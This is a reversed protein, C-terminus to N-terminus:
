GYGGFSVRIMTTEPNIAKKRLEQFKEAALKSISIM